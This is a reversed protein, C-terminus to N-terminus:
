LGDHRLTGSMLGAQAAAPMAALMLFILLNRIM